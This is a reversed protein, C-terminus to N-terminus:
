DIVEGIFPLALLVVLLIGIQTGITTFYGQSGVGGNTEGGSDPGNTTNDLDPTPDPEAAPPPTPEPDPQTVPDPDPQPPPTGGPPSGGGGGGGGGNSVPDNDSPDPLDPPAETPDDEVYISSDGGPGYVGGGANPNMGADILDQETVM